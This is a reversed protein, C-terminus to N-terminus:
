SGMKIVFVRRSKRGERKRGIEMLRKGRRGCLKSGNRTKIENSNM